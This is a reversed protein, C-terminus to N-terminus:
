FWQRGKRHKLENVSPVKDCTFYGSHVKAEIEVHSDPPILESPIPVRELVSIGCDAIANYKMHSMSILRDVKSVGLWKLVDPMMQQFRMDETGAIRQTRKFYETAHDGARKRANYVLYKTVEGLARGEKRFYIVVGSGGAQAQKIGEEIAFILYPRCTCIDSGFVDSGNCEDHVRLTLKKSPDSINLPDGFIYVTLGGIPPLFVKLDPRTVLEPYMGNTHEFLTVRLEKESMGFRKAIGPLYWVQEVAIKSVNLDGNKNAVIKGDVPLRGLSVAERIEPVQMTAKTIAVTPRIEVREQRAISGFLSPALHGLPDMSVIEDKNFWAEQPPLHFMPESMSYDAVHDAQLAKAGVALAQYICYSGAYAGIANHKSFGEGRRSAVVPGRDSVTKAGWQIAVPHSEEPFSTIRVDDVSQHKDETHTCVPLDGVYNPGTVSAMIM